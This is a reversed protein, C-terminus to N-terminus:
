SCTECILVVAFLSISLFEVLKQCASFSQKELFNRIKNPDKDNAIIGIYIKIKNNEFKEKKGLYDNLDYLFCIGNYGLNEAITIFSEENNNPIVIDIM